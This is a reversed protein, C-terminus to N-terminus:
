TMHSSFPFGRSVLFACLAIFITSGPVTSSTPQQEEAVSRASRSRALRSCSYRDHGCRCAFSFCVAGLYECEGSKRATILPM